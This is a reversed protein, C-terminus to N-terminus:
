TPGNAKWDIERLTRFVCSKMAAAASEVRYRAATTESLSPERGPESRRPCPKDDGGVGLTAAELAMQVVAGLLPQGAQRPGRAHPRAARCRGAVLRREREVVGPSLKDERHVLKALEGVADM